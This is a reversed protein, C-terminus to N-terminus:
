AEYADGGAVAFAVGLFSAQERGNGNLDVEITGSTLELSEVLALAVNSGKRNGGVPSLRLARKDGDSLPTAEGNLVRWASADHIRALDPAIPRGAATAPPHAVRCASLGLVAIAAARMIHHFCRGAGSPE